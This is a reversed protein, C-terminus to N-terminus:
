PYYGAYVYMTVQGDTVEVSQIRLVDVGRGVVRVDNVYPFVTQFLLPPAAGHTFVVAGAGSPSAAFGGTPRAIVDAIITDPDEGAVFRSAFVEAYAQDVAAALEALDAGNAEAAVPGTEAGDTTTWGVVVVRVSGDLSVTMPRSTSVDVGLEDPTFGAGQNECTDAPLSACQEFRHLELQLPQSPDDPWGMKVAYDGDALPQGPPPFAPSPTGHWTDGCCPPFAKGTISALDIPTWGSPPVPYTTTPAITTSASTTTAATTTPVATTAPETTTTEQEPTTTSTSQRGSGCSALALGLVFVVVRSGSPTRM